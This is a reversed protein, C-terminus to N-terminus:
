PGTLFNQNYGLERKKLVEDDAVTPLTNDSIAHAVSGKAIDNPTYDLVEYQGNLPWLVFMRGNSALQPKKENFPTGNPGTDGDFIDEVVEDTTLWACHPKPSEKREMVQGHVYVSNDGQTDYGWDALAIEGSPHFVWLHQLFQMDQYDGVTGSSTKEFDTAWYNHTPNILFVHDPLDVEKLLVYDVIQEGLLPSDEPGPLRLGNSDLTVPAQDYDLIEQRDAVCFM